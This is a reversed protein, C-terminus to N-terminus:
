FESLIRLAEKQESSFVLKRNKFIRLMFGLCGPEIPLGQGKITLNFSTPEPSTIEIPGSTKAISQENLFYELEFQTPIEDKSEIKFRLVLALTLPVPWQINTIRSSQIVIRDDYVGMLSLKKHMEHRVDECFIFDYLKM